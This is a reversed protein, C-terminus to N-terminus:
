SREGSLTVAQTIRSLVGGGFSGSVAIELAQGSKGKDVRRTRSMVTPLSRALGARSAGPAGCDTEKPLVGSSRWRVSIDANAERNDTCTGYM